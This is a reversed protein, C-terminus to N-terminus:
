KALGLPITFQWTKRGAGEPIAPFPAARRVAALAAQDLSPSGSSRAISLGGLAGSATVTFAVTVDREAGARDRRSIRGVARSIKGRVKGPYNTVAANGPASGKGKGARDARTGGVEGDAAGKRGDAKNTGGSGASTRKEAAKAPADANAPRKEVPKAEAKKVPKEPRPKEVPKPEPKAEAVKPSPAPQIKVPETSEAVATERPVEVAEDPALAATAQPVIPAVAEDDPVIEATDVALVPQQMPSPVATTADTPAPEGRAAAETVSEAAAIEEVPTAAEAVPQLAEVPEVEAADVTEVPTATTMTVIAVSTPQQEGQMVQDAASDGYMVVGAEQSGAVLVGEDPGRLLFFGAAAAHLAISALLMALWKRSRRPLSTGTEALPAVSLPALDPSESEIWAPRPPECLFVHHPAQFTNPPDLRVRRATSRAPVFRRPLHASPQLSM